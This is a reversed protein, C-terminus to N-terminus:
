PAAVHASTYSGGGVGLQAPMYFCCTDSAELSEKDAKKRATDARAREAEAAAAAREREAEALQDVFHQIASQALALRAATFPARECPITSSPDLLARSM